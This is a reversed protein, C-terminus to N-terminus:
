PLFVLCILELKGEDSVLYILPFYVHLIEGSILHPTTYDVIWVLTGRIPQVEAVEHINRHIIAVPKIAFSGVGRLQVGLLVVIDVNRGAIMIYGLGIRTRHAPTRQPIVKLLYPPVQCSDWSM